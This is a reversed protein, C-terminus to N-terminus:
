EGRLIELMPIFRDIIENLGMPLQPVQHFDNKMEFFLEASVYFRGVHCVYDIKESWIKRAKPRL